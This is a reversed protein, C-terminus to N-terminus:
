DNLSIKYSALIEKIYGELESDSDAIARLTAKANDSIKECVALQERLKQRRTNLGHKIEVMERKDLLAATQRPWVLPDNVGAKKLKDVLDDCYVRYDTNAQSYKMADHVMKNYLEWDYELEKSDHINYKEYIYDITSANQIYKAKVTNLLSVARRIKADTVKIENKLDVYHTYSLAFALSVVAAMILAPLLVNTKGIVAVGALSLLSLIFIILVTTIVGKTRAISDKFERRMYKLDEKEGELYGMDNKLMNDRMEMANLSRITDVVENELRMLRNFQDMPLLNESQLYSSRNKDVMEIRQATEMVDRAMNPPLEEIKQIDVLYATVLKYERKLDESQYTADVLQEVCDQAAKRDSYGRKASIIEQHLEVDRRIRADYDWGEDDTEAYLKKFWSKLSRKKKSKKEPKDQEDSEEEAQEAPKEVVKKATKEAKGAKKRAADEAAKKAPEEAVEESGEEDAKEADAEEAEEETEEESDLDTEDTDDEALYEKFRQLLGM